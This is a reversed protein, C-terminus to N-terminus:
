VKALTKCGCKTPQLTVDDIKLIYACMGDKHISLAHGCITCKEM